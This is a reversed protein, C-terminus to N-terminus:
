QHLCRHTATALVGPGRTTTPVPLGGVRKRWVPVMFVFLKQKAPQSTTHTHKDTLTQIETSHLGFAVFSKNSYTATIAM